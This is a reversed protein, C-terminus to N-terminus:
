EDVKGFIKKLQKEFNNELNLVTEKYVAFDQVIQEYNNLMFKIKEIIIEINSVKSEIKYADPIPVDGYFGSAGNNGTLIACGFLVAEKPMREAGPFPGFDIYVKANKYCEILEKQSMGKLAIFTIGSTKSIIKSVFAGCKAPNYLVIDKKSKENNILDKTSKLYENLFIKSIPEICLYCNNSTHKSVYDFAYYSACLHSVNKSENKFNYKKKKLVNLFNSKLWNFGKKYNKIIRLPMTLLFYLKFFVSTKTFNYNVSLWWIYVKSKKFSSSLFSIFEPIIVINDADDKLDDFLLFHDIYNKYPNPIQENYSGAGLYIAIADFGLKNLYYVLQHLADPGGTVLGYPILVFIRM